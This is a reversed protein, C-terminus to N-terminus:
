RVPALIAQMNPDTLLRQYAKQGLANILLRGSVDAKVYEVALLSVTRNNTLVADDKSHLGFEAIATDSDDSVVLALRRGSLRQRASSGCETLDYTHPGNLQSPGYMAIHVDVGRASAAELSVKHHEIEEEWLGAFLTQEAKEIITNFATIITPRDSLSWVLGPESRKPLAALAADVVMLDNEFHQKMTRLLESYPVAAYKVPEGRNVMVVGKDELRRLTEYVKSPPVRSEKGVESGTLPSQQVLAWYAQAEYQSFGLRMLAALLADDAIPKMVTADYLGLGCIVVTTTFESITVVM